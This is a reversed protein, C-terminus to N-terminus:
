PYGWEVKLTPRGIANWDGTDSSLFYKGSHRPSDASYFVLRLPQGSAFAESVAKSVDWTRPVGPWGPFEIIPEVWARSINETALPANNWTLTQEKWDEGVTFVQILSVPPEGYDGGGANGFQYLTVTASVVASQVPISTLPFTIYFKSFCPWDAVDYQNQINVQSRGAYNAKGWTTWDSGTGCTSNGGVMSDIVEAGNLQHRITTSGIPEIDPTVYSPLGFSLQGWSEPRDPVMEPPWNKVLLPGEAVSDRDYLIVALGWVRGTPPPGDMGLSKFPIHYTITWGRDNQSDDNPANGRWGTETSFQLMAQKWGSADGQYSAQYNSRPEWWSLESDFRFNNTTLRNEVSGETDLFISVGDWSTLDTNSSDTSYWLNRDFITLHIYLEDQTYGVRVDSYNEDLTVKGFWFIGTESFQVRNDFYPVNVRFGPSFSVNGPSRLVLPIYIALNSSFETPTDLTLGDMERSPFYIQSADPYLRDKCPDLLLFIGLTFTIVLLRHM